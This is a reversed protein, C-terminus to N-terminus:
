HRYFTSGDPFTLTNHQCPICQPGLKVKHKECIEFARLYVEEFYEATPVPHNYLPTGLAPRFPSLVPTCGREALAQVGGLTRDIPELGVMLMSRVESGFFGVAKDIFSLWSEKQIANKEPIMRNRWDDDYLEMNISLGNLGQKHLSKLDLVLPLPLMMIDIPISPFAELVEKYVNSLYFYDREQPTGGSILVHKAPLIPDNLAAQITEKLLAVEKCRYTFRRPLDCFACSNSCGSIPSVRVRDTHTLGYHTHPEGQSNLKSAFAPVPLPLVPWEDPPSQLVYEEGTWELQHPTTIVFNPNHDIIPVNVWINEPLCLPVGSTSAYDAVTLAGYVSSAILQKRARESISMGETFLRFKLRQLSTLMLMYEKLFFPGKYTNIM